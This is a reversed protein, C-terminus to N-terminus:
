INSLQELSVININRKHVILVNTVADHSYRYIVNKYVSVNVKVQLCISLHLQVEKMTKM